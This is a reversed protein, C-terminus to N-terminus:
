LKTFTFSAGEKRDYKDVYEQLGRVDDDRFFKYEHTVTNCGKKGANYVRKVIIM